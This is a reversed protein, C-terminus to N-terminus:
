QQARIRVASRALGFVLKGAHDRLANLGEWREVSTFGLDRAIRLMNSIESLSGLAIDAFRRLERGGLRATGEALNNTVSVAARRAQATLGYVERPPWGDTETYIALVLQHSKQWADLREYPMM